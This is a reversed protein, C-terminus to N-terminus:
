AEQCKRSPPKCTPPAKGHKHGSVSSGQTDSNAAFHLVLSNNCKKQITIAFPKLKLKSTSSNSEKKNKFKIKLLDTM